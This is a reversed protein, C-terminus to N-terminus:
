TKSGFCLSELHFIKTKGPTAFIDMLIYYHIFPIKLIKLSMKLKGLIKIYMSELSLSVLRKCVFVPNYSVM